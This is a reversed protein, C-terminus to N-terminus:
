LLKTLNSGYLLKVFVVVYFGSGKYQSMMILADVLLNDYDM